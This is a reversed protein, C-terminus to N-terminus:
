LITERWSGFILLAWLLYAHNAHGDLHSRWLKRLVDPELFPWFVEPSKLLLRDGVPRLDIRLLRALPVNFGRKVGKVFEDGAGREAIARRLLRKGHGTCHTLLSGDIQGAFDMMRRDLFPVRIELGHAMSMRDVKMLMDSPLYVKQDALLCRDLLSGKAELLPRRYCALPDMGMVPLMAPAMMSQLTQQDSLRRWEAHHTGAPADVGKLFRGLVQHWPLRREDSGYLRALLNVVLHAASRPVLPAVLKAIQSAKYTPYGGFFEDAGDGALAVKVEKRVTRSLLYHALCSSDALQGDVALAVKNFTDVLSVDDDVSVTHWSHGSLIALREAAAAENHSKEAFIATFCPISRPVSFALLASDIGSSQLLGVPVDSALMENCITSLINQLDDLAETIDTIVAHRQPEWFRWITSTGNRNVTKMCGPPIQRVGMLLSDEPSTYGLSLYTHLAAPCVERSIDDLALLGKIESSFYIANAGEAIYLPKIGIGDRALILQETRTDWLAIAYMGELRNFLQKGWLRWGIPLLETDCNSRFLYGTTQEIERRLTVYNYIEGNYSVCIEGEIDTMPQHGNQSLDRISLRRHGLGIYLNIWHGEGDPGRHAIADTMRKLRDIDVSYGDTMLIGAIGCM